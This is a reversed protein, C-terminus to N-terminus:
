GGSASELKYAFALFLRCYAVKKEDRFEGHRIAVEM